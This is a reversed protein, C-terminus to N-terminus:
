YVMNFNIDVAFQKMNHKSSGTHMTTTVLPNYPLTCLTWRHEFLLMNLVAAQNMSTVQTYVTWLSFM